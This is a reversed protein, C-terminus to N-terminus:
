NKTKTSEKKSSFAENIIEDQWGVQKLNAKIEDDNKGNKRMNEIYVKIKHMNENPIHVDHMVLDVVSESWGAKLLSQKISQFEVGESECKKVFEKIETLEKDSSVSVKKQYFFFGVGIGIIIIAAFVYILVKWIVINSEKKAKTSSTQSQPPNIVEGTTESSTTDGSTQQEGTGQSAEQNQQSLLDGRVGFYGLSEPSAEYFVYNSDSTTKETAIKEWAGNVYSYLSISNQDISNATLWAKDVRFKITISSLNSDKVVSKDVKLYQFVKSELSQMASPLSTLKELSFLVSGQIDSNLTFSIQTFAIQATPISMTYQGQEPNQWVQNVKISSTSITSTGGGSSGGGDDGGGSESDTNKYDNEIACNGLQDCSTINYYYRTDDNLGTFDVSSSNAFGSYTQVDDDLKVTWNAPEDTSFTITISDTDASESTVSIIPSTLDNITFNIMSIRANSYIDTCNVTINHPTNSYVNFYTSFSTTGQQLIYNNSDLAYSCSSNENVSFILSNHYSANVISNNVPSIINLTPGITDNVAFVSSLHPAYVFVNETTSNFCAASTAETYDPSACATIIYCDSLDDEGCYYLINNYHSINYPLKIKAYYDDSDEIFFTFDKFSIYDIPMTGLANNVETEFTTSNDEASFFFNWVSESATFNYIDV